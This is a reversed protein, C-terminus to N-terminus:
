GVPQSVQEEVEAKSVGLHKVKNHIEDPSKGKAALEQIKEAAEAKKDSTDKLTKGARSGGVTPVNVEVAEPELGPIYRWTGYKQAMDKRDAIFPDDVHRVGKMSMVEGGGPMSYNVTIQPLSGDRPTLGVQAVQAVLPENEDGHRFYQIPFSVVPLKLKM